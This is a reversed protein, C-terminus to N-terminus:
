TNEVGKVMVRIIFAGGLYLAAAIILMFIGDGFWYSRSDAARLSFLWMLPVAGLALFLTPKVQAVASRLKQRIRTRQIVIEQITALQPGLPAGSEVAVEVSSVLFQMERSPVRGALSGLAQQLSINVALDDRLLRMEDGLPSPLDEAVKLMARQPTSGAQLNSELGSILNPLQKEMAGIRKREQASLWLRWGGATVLPAVLAGFAGGPFVLFGFAAAFLMMGAVLRGPSERETLVAGTKESARAWYEFWGVRKDSDESNNLATDIDLESGRVFELGEAFSKKRAPNRLSSNVALVLGVTTAMVMVVAFLVLPQELVDFRIMSLEEGFWFDSSVTIPQFSVFM